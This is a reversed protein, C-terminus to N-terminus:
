LTLSGMTASLNPANMSMQKTPSLNMTASL